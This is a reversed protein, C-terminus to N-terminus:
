FGIFFNTFAWIAGSVAVPITFNDNIFPMTEFLAGVAGAILGVRIWGLPIFNPFFYLFISTALFTFALFGFAGAFSKSKDWPIRGLTPWKWHQWAKGILAAASDGVCLAIVGFVLAEKSFFILSILLGLFFYFSPLAVSKDRKRLANKIISQVFGEDARELEKDEAPGDLHVTEFVGAIFNKVQFRRRKRLDIWWYLFLTGAVLFGLIKLLWAENLYVLPIIVLLGILHVLKRRIETLLM